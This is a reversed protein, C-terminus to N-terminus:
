IASVSKSVLAYKSIATNYVFEASLITGFELSLPIDNTLFKNGFGGYTFTGSTSRLMIVLRPKFTNVVNIKNTTAGTGVIDWIYGKSTDIDGSTTLTLQPANITNDFLQVQQWTSGDYKLRVWSGKGRLITQAMNINLDGSRISTFDDNIVITIERGKLNGNFGRIVLESTNNTIFTSHEKVLNLRPVDGTPLPQMNYNAPMKIDTHNEIVSVQIYKSPDADILKSIIPNSIICNSAFGVRISYASSTNLETFNTIVGDTVRIRTEGDQANIDGLFLPYLCSVATCDNMKLFRMEMGNANDTSHNDRCYFCFGRECNEAYCNLITNHNAIGKKNAGQINDSIAGFGYGTHDYAKCNEFTVHLAKSIFGHISKYTECDRVTINKNTGNYSEFLVGHSHVRFVCNRVVIDSCSGQTGELGNDTTTSYLGINEIFISNTKIVIKCDTLITGHEMTDNNRDYYPKSQGKINIQKTLFLEGNIFYDGTPILLTAGYPLSAFAREFRGKDTTESPLRPFKDLSYGMQERFLIETLLEDDVYTKDAKNTELNELESDIRDIEGDINSQISQKLDLLTQTVFLKYEEFETKDLKSNFLAENILDELTGDNLWTDLQSLVAEKLGDNTVWEMIEEILETYSNTVLILDNLKYITAVLLEYESLSMREFALDMPPIQSIRVRFEEFRKPDFIPTTFSPINSM